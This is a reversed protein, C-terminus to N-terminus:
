SICPATALGTQMLHYLLGALQNYQNIFQKSSIAKIQMMIEVIWSKLFGKKMPTAPLPILAMAGTDLLFQFFTKRSRVAKKFFSLIIFCLFLQFRFANFTKHLVAFADRRSGVQHYHDVATSSVTAFYLFCLLSFIGMMLRDSNSAIIAPLLFVIAIPPVLPFLVVVAM